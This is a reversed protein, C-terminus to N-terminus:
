LMHELIECMTKNDFIKEKIGTTIFPDRMIQGLCHMHLANFRFGMMKDCIRQYARIVDIGKVGFNAGYRDFDMVVDDSLLWWESEPEQIDILNLRPKGINYQKDLYRMLDSLEQMNTAYVNAPALYGMDYRLHERKCANTKCVDDLYDELWVAKDSHLIDFVKYRGHEKFIEIAHHSYEKVEQEIESKIKLMRFEQIEPSEPRMKLVITNSLINNEAYYTKLEFAAEYCNGKYTNRIKGSTRSGNRDNDYIEKRRNQIIRVVKGM